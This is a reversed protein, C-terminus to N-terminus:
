EVSGEFTHTDLWNKNRFLSRLSAATQRLQNRKLGRPLSRAFRLVVRRKEVLEAISLRQPDSDAQYERVPM